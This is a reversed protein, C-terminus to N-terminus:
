ATFKKTIFAKEFTVMVKLKKKKRKEGRYEKKELM